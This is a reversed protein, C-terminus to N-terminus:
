IVLPAIPSCGYFLGTLGRALLFLGARNTSKYFLSVSSNIGICVTSCVSPSVVASVVPVVTVNASTGFVKVYRSVIPCIPYYSKFGSTLGLTASVMDACNTVVLSGFNDGNIGICVSGSGVPSGVSIVVPVVTGNATTVCLKIGRCVCPAFPYYSKFGSALGLTASVVNARNTIVLCGLINRGCWVIRRGFPGRILGSMPM